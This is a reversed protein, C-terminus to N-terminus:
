WYRLSFGLKRIRPGRAGTAGAELEPVDDFRGPSGSALGVFRQFM